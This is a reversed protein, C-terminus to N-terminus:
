GPRFVPAKHPAGQGQSRTVRRAVRLKQKMPGRNPIGGCVAGGGTRRSLLVKQGEVSFCKPHPETLSLSDRGKCKFRPRAGLGLFCCQWAKDLELLLQACVNRPVDALWDVEARLPTLENIQNFGTYYRRRERPRALGLLRQEHAVNWLARL